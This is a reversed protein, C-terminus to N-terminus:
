SYIVYGADLSFNAPTHQNDEVFALLEDQYNGSLGTSYYIATGMISPDGSPLVQDFSLRKTVYHENRLAPNNSSLNALQIKDLSQHFDKIHAFQLFGSSVDISDDYYREGRDGIEFIDAGQAGNGGENDGWLIDIGDYAHQGNRQASGTLRDDHDGGVLVDNDYGGILRDNGVGGFLYDKDSYQAHICSYNGHVPGGELRDNGAEGFIWDNGLGGYIRDSGGVISNFLDNDANGDDGFIIDNSAMITIPQSPDCNDPDPILDNISRQERDEGYLVDGRDGGIILDDEDFGYIADVNDSGNLIDVQNTGLINGEGTRPESAKNLLEELVNEFLDLYSM